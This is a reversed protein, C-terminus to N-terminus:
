EVRLLDHFTNTLGRLLFGVWLRYGMSRTFFLLPLPRFVGRQKEGLPWDVQWGVLCRLLRSWGRFSDGIGPLIPRAVAFLKLEIAPLVGRGGEVAGPVVGAVLYEELRLRIVAFCIM